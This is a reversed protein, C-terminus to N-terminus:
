KRTGKPPLTEKLPFCPLRRQRECHARESHPGKRHRVQLTEYAADRTAESRLSTIKQAFDAGEKSLRATTKAEALSLYPAEALRVVNGASSLMAVADFEMLIKGKKQSRNEALPIDAETKLADIDNEIAEKKGESSATTPDM